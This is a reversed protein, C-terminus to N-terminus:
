RYMRQPLKDVTKNFTNRMGILQKNMSVEMRKMMKDMALAGKEFDYTKIDNWVVEPSVMLTYLMKLFTVRRPGPKVDSSPNTANAVSAVEHNARQQGDGTVKVELAFVSDPIKGSRNMRGSSRSYGILMVWMHPKVVPLEDLAAMDLISFKRATKNRIGYCAPPKKSKRMEYSLYSVGLCSICDNDADNPPTDINKRETSGSRNSGNKNSDDGDGSSNAM